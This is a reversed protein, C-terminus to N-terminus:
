GVFFIPCNAPNISPKPTGSTSSSQTATLPDNKCISQIDLSKAREEHVAREDDELTGYESHPKPDVIVPPPPSTDMQLDFGQKLFCTRVTRLDANVGDLDELLSPQLYYHINIQSVGGAPNVAPLTYQLLAVVGLNTSNKANANDKIRQGITGSQPKFSTGIDGARLGIIQL